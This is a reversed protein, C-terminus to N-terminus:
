DTPFQVGPFSKSQNPDRYLTPKLYKGKYKIKAHLWQTEGATCATIVLKMNKEKATNLYKVYNKLFEERDVLALLESTGDVLSDPKQLIVYVTSIQNPVFLDAEAFVNLPACFLMICFVLTKKM